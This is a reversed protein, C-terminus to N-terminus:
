CVHVVVHPFFLGVKYGLSSYEINQLLRYPFIISINKYLQIM